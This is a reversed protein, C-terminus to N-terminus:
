LQVAASQSMMSVQLFIVFTYSVSKTVKVQQAMSFEHVHAFKHCMYTPLITAMERLNGCFVHCISGFDILFPCKMNVKLTLYSWYFFHRDPSNETWFDFRPFDPDLM